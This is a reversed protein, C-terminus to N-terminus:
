GYWLNGENVQGQQVQHSRGPLPEEQQLLGTPRPLPEVQQGSQLQQLGQFVFIYLKVCESHYM